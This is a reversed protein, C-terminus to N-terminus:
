HEYKEVVKGSLVYKKNKLDYYLIFSTIYFEGVKVKNYTKETDFINIHKDENDLLQILYWKQGKSNVGTKTNIVKCTTEFVM